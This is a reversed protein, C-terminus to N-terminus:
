GTPIAFPFTTLAGKVPTNTRRSPITEILCACFPDQAIADVRLGDASELLGELDAM